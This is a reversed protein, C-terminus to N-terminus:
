FLLKKIKEKISKLDNEELLKALIDNKEKLHFVSEYYDLKKELKKIVNGIYSRSVELNDAIEGMSLNEEYYLRFIEQNKETFLAKYLDFLLSYYVFKEM